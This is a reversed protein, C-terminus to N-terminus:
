FVNKKDSRIDPVNRTLNNLMGALERTQERRSYKSIADRDPVNPEGMKWKEYYNIVIREMAAADDPGATDGARCQRIIAATDGGAPGISLIPTGSALYEFFKGTIIGGAGETAPVCLLLLSSAVQYRMVESHPVWPTYHVYKNLGYKSISERITDDVKGVLSIKLDAAFDGRSDSLRGLTQWLTEPNSSPLFTGIHSLTFSKATNSQHTNLGEFDAPDYGNHIVDVPRGGIQELESRISNSVTIVRDAQQLVSKELRLHKTKSRETLRLEEHYYIGTWPDRFDALWPTKTSKKLHLAILHLSHPPGTSVIVDVPYDSLYRNLKRVSPGIWFRRADPILCNGRLWRSVTEALGPKKSESAFGVQIAEDQKRGTLKKYLGYPEFIPHKIIEAEAPIDAELSHDVAPREPNEPTYVVPKWGNEPLYRSFKLWRQVGSAGTPPWYYTIILVRKNAM